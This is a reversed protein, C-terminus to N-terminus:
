LVSRLFACIWQSLSLMTLINFIGSITLNGAEQIQTFALKTLQKAWEVLDHPTLTTIYYTVVFMVKQLTDFDPLNQPPIDQIIEHTLAKDVFAETLSFIESEIESTSSHVESLPTKHSPTPHPSIHLTIKPIYLSQLVHNLNDLQPYLKMLPQMMDQIQTLSKSICTLDYEQLYTMQEAFTKGLGQFQSLAINAKLLVDNPIVSSHISFTKLVESYNEKSM